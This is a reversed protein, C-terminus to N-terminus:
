KEDQDFFQFRTGHEGATEVIASVNDPICGDVDQWGNTFDDRFIIRVIEDLWIQMFILNDKKDRLALSELSENVTVPTQCVSGSFGSGEAYVTCSKENCIKELRNIEKEFNAIM